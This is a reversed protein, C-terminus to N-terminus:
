SSISCFPNYAGKKINGSPLVVFPVYMYLKLLPANLKSFVTFGTIRLYEKLPKLV